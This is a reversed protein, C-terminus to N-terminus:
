KKIKRAIDRFFRKTFLQLYFWHFRFDNRHKKVVQWKEFAMRSRSVESFGPDFAAIVTDSNFFTLGQMYCNFIIDYDACIKFQTNFKRKQLVASRTFLSQHTFVMTKWLIDFSWAKVVGRFDGGLFYTHGYIFDAGGCDKNFVTEVTDKQYFSDGANMFNIWQGSARDIGKNMADFIGNDPESIWLDIKDENRKIVDLTSDSSAGDIIIFEIHGYTQELVSRITKKLGEADNLVVTVITILPRERPPEKNM